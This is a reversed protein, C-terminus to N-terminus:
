RKPRVPHSTLALTFDSRTPPERVGVAAEASGDEV